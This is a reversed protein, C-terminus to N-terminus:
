KMECVDQICQKCGRRSLSNFEFGGLDLTNTGSDLDLTEKLNDLLAGAAGTSVAATGSISGNNVKNNALGGQRTQRGGDDASTKGTSERAWTGKGEKCGVIGGKGREGRGNDLRKQSVIFEKRM